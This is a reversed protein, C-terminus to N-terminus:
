TWVMSSATSIFVGKLDISSNTSLFVGQVDMSSATSIFVGKVDMSSNTSLFVGQVDMSSATSISVGKVDMSSYTLFVGHLDMRRAAATPGFQLFHFTWPWSSMTLHLHRFTMIGSFHQNPMPM